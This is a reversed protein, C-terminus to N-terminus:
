PNLKTGGDIVEDLNHAFGAKTRFKKAVGLIAYAEKIDLLWTVFLYSILGATSAIGTLILLNITRTTDFVLQDLLKIPIYLSVGMVFTALTIKAISTIMEFKPLSLKKDLLILQALFAIWQAITFSLALYPIPLHMVMIFIYSVIINIVVAVTTTAFPTKTDHQAYFARALLYILAQSAMSLAFAALTLGTSVTAAWDFTERAGYLLRVIPIRLVIFLASIPLILYLIQNFSAVFIRKFVVLDDKKKSLVPFSAQAISQGFLLVPALMLVQALDFIVISRASIYSAFFVNATLAVQTVIITLSRPVMMPVVGRIGYNLSFLFRARYKNVVLLPIQVLAYLMAGFLAGIAAAYIGYEKALLLTAIIIGLNYLANAIGPILFHQFSQLMATFITAFVFIIQALMIIRTLQVMLDIEQPNLGPAVMVSLPRAFIMVVISIIAFGITSVTLMSSAFDFAEREKNQSLFGSFIPIFSSSVAGIIIVQFLFEPVRFAAFFVGLDSSPGFESLMIRYKLFGLIQAIITTAALFFAASIIRTQKSIFAERGKKLLFDVM